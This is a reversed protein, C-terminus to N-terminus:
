RSPIFSEDFHVPWGNECGIVIVRSSKTARYKCPPRSSGGRHKCTTVQFASRSIKLNGGYPEGNRDECIAKIDNKNGHIFTNTDKCPRTLGRNQMINNCYKDDRGKPKADYHQTLFHRYRYDDQDLALPTLGLGLMFVLFLPSLVMVMEELLPEEAESCTQPFPCSPPFSTKRVRKKGTVVVDLRSFHLPAALHLTPTRPKKYNPRRGVEGLLRKGGPGAELAPTLAVGTRPPVPPNRGPSLHLKSTRAQYESALLVRGSPAQLSSAGAGCPQREWALVQPDRPRGWGHLDAPRNDERLASGRAEQGSSTHRGQTGGRCPGGGRSKSHDRLALVDESSPLVQRLKYGIRGCDPHCLLGQGRSNSGLLLHEARSNIQSMLRPESDARLEQLLAERAEGDATALPLLRQM